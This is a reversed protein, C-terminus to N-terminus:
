LNNRAYLRRGKRGKRTRTPFNKPQEEKVLGNCKEYHNNIGGEIFRYEIGCKPCKPEDQPM